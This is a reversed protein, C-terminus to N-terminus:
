RSRETVSQRDRSILSRWPEDRYAPSLEVWGLRNGADLVLAEGPRGQALKDISLLEERSTSTSISRARRGRGDRSESISARAVEVNGGLERLLTLTGRDAVGGLVVTTSFLSLFGDATAGWRARAQSLDQLCGITLLGQGGGESVLQPLEPLPAINALEDLAFLMPAEVDARRYSADQVESLLGVVLPALLAQQRGPACVYLTHASRVLEDADLPDRRAADLAAPSRYAGLVGSSTSWIGSQERSDTALVGLLLSTAPHEAGCLSELRELADHGQHRDVWRLVEDMPAASLSAAHLLAALLAGSRESWHDVPGTLMSRRQSAAVMGAATSLADEWTLSSRLPSWGIREVGDALETKGSPDFLLCSGARARAKATTLMVDPKTSTVVVGHSACLVNPVIISSTKGSRTPGIVLASRQAGSWVWGHPDRGILLGKSSHKREDARADHV